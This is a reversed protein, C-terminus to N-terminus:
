ASAPQQVPNQQFPFLEPLIVRQNNQCQNYEVRCIDQVTSCPPLHVAHQAQQQHTNRQQRNFTLPDQRKRQVHETHQNFRLRQHKARQSQCIDDFRQNFVFVAPFRHQDAGTDTNRHKSRAYNREANMLFPVPQDLQIGFGQPRIGICRDIRRVEMIQQAAVPHLHISSCM